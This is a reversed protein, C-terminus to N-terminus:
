LIKDLLAPLEEMADVRHEAATDASPHVRVCRCGAAHGAAIDREQDGIMWSANLDLDHKKAAELIMGPKPKRCACEDAALHPCYYVDLLELNWEGLQAKLNAHIVEVTHRTYEGKGVGQQNTIIVAVYGRDKVLRLAEMFGPMLRFEDWSRIYYNNPHKNVIGDRDFFVCPRSM